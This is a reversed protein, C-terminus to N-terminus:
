HHNGGVRFMMKGIGARRQALVPPFSFSTDFLGTIRTHFHATRDARDPATRDAAGCFHLIRNFEGFSPELDSRVVDFMGIM